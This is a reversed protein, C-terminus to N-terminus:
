KFKFVTCVGGTGPLSEQCKVDRRTNCICITVVRLRVFLLLALFDIEASARNERQTAKVQKPQDSCNALAQKADSVVRLQPASQWSWM